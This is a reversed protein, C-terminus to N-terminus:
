PSPFMFRRQSSACAESCLDRSHRRAQDFDFERAWEQGHISMFQFLRCLSRTVDPRIPLSSLRQALQRGPTPRGSRQFAVSRLRLQRFYRAAAHEAPFKGRGARHPLGMDLNRSRECTPQERSLDKGVARRKRKEAVAHAHGLRFECKEHPAVQRWPLRSVALVFHHGGDSIQVESQLRRVGSRATKSFAPSAWSMASM